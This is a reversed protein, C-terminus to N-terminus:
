APRSLAAPLAAPQRAARGTLEILAAGRPAALAAEIARHAAEDAAMQGVSLQAKTVPALMAAQDFYQHTAYAREPAAFGDALLVVPARDLAAHAMGNAANGVGPGRTCLAFGPTGSLEAETAAMIVASSEHRALVFDLGQAKAAAILDLSSGGGPVGYLRRTGAGAFAAAIADAATTLAADNM